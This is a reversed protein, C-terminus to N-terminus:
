GKELYKLTDFFILLHTKPIAQRAIAVVEDLSAGAQAAKAAAIAILGLPAAGFQGDITEIRCKKEVLDKAKVGYEYLPSFKSSLLVAVIEDTEEALKNYVELFQGISPSATTPWIPTNVLRSYFEDATIEVGNLYAETGFSVTLPVVTIGLERAVQPPIDSSGDTVVKVTM